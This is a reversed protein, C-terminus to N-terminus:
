RFLYAYTLWCVIGLVLLFGVEWLKPKIIELNLERIRFRIM